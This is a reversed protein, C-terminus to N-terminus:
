IAEIVELASVCEIPVFAQENNALYEDFAAGISDVIGEEIFIDAIHPRGLIRDADVWIDEYSRDLPTVEHLRYIIKQNRDQHYERVQKLIDSLQTDTPDIFYGLLENKTDRVDVRVEV